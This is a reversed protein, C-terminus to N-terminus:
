EVAPNDKNSYKGRKSKVVVTNNPNEAVALEIEIVQEKGPVISVTTTRYGVYSVLLETHTSAPTNLSFTGDANTTVGKGGKFFVRVAQLPQKTAADKVIGKVTTAAYSSVFGLIFLAMLVLRKRNHLIQRHM